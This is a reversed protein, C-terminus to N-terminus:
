LRPALLKDPLPGLRHERRFIHQFVKGAWQTVKAHLGVMQCPFGCFTAAPSFGLARPQGTRKKGAHGGSVSVGGFASGPLPSSLGVCPAPSVSM